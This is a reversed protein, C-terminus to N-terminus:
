GNIWDEVALGPVRRFEKGNNTILTLGLSVAHAAILLDLPGIPMGGRELTARIQGYTTAARHDFDVIVLPILFQELAQRNKEPHASKEVGYALEAVTIASIAIDGVAYHNFKQLLDAPKKRILYICIDTDLLYIM